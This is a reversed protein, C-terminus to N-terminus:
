YRIQSSMIKCFPVINEGIYDANGGCLVIVQTRQMAGRLWTELNRRYIGMAKDTAQVLIGIERERDTSRCVSGFAEANGAMVYRWVPLILESEPYGGSASAIRELANYLGYDSSKPKTIEGSRCFLVSTNRFGMMIVGIDRNRAIGVNRHWMMVGFGEPYVEITKVIPRVIGSPTLIKRCALRLQSIAEDKYGYEGPPLVSLLSLEFRVPLELQRHIVSIAACIKPVITEIKLPKIELPCDYESVAYNGVAYNAGSVGVWVSNQDFFGRPVPTEDIKTCYPEITLTQCQTSGKLSFTVKISSAGPDIAVLVHPVESRDIYTM